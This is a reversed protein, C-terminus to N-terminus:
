LGDRGPARPGPILFLSSKLHPTLLGLGQPGLALHAAGTLRDLHERGLAWGRSWRGARHAGQGVWRLAPRRRSLARSGALGECGQGAKERERGRM